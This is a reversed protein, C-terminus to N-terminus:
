GIWVGQVPVQPQQLAWQDFAQVHQASQQLAPPPQTLDARAMAGPPWSAAFTMTKGDIHIHGLNEATIRNVHCASTAQALRSESTQAPLLEKLRAYLAHQPHDSDSFAIAASQGTAISAQTAGAPKVASRSDLQARRWTADLEDRVHGTAPNNGYLRGSTTWQGDPHRTYVHGDSAQLEDRSARSARTVAEPPPGFRRWGNTAWADLYRNAIARGSHALNDAVVADAARDLEASRGARAVEAHQNFMGHELMGTAVERSWEHTRADRIWPSPRLSPTDGPGAPQAYPDRPRPVHDLALQVAVSSARYNLEDALTPPATLVQQQHTFAHLQYDGPNLDPHISEITRTWGRTPQAPDYHWAHGERDRQTHIRHDDIADAVKDGAVAGAVSGLTTTVLVGPGTEWGLAAGAEAGLVLGGLLGLNRSGFHLVESQAAPTNGQHLLDSTRTITAGTEYAVAAVGLVGAGRALHPSLASREVETAIGPLNDVSRVYVPTNFLQRNPVLVQEAGGAKTVLGNLEFTPAVTNVFVRTPVVPTMRYMGYRPAESDIPLACYESINRGAAMLAKAESEWMWFPSHASPSSREAVFKVLAEGSEITVMRPLDRGSMLQTIARRAIQDPHLGQEAAAEAVRSYFMTGEDTKLYDLAVSRSIGHPEFTESGSIATTHQRKLLDPTLGDPSM